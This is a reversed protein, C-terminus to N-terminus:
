GNGDETREIQALAQRFNEALRNPEHEDMTSAFCVIADLFPEIARAAEVLGDVAAPQPTARENWAAIAEAVTRKSVVCGCDDYCYAAWERTDWTPWNESCRAEGGCLPCPKLEVPEAKVQEM